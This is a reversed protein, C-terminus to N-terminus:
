RDDTAMDCERSVYFILRTSIYVMLGANFINVGFIDSSLKVFSNGFFCGADKFECISTFIIVVYWFWYNNIVGTIFARFVLSGSLTSLSLETLGRYSDTSNKFLCYILAVKSLSSSV